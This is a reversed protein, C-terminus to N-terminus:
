CLEVGICIVFHLSTEHMLSECVDSDCGHFAYRGGQLITGNGNSSVVQMPFEDGLGLNTGGCRAQVSPCSSGLLLSPSGSSGGSVVVLIVVFDVLVGVVAQECPPYLAALSALVPCRSCSRPSHKCPTDNPGGTCKEKKERDDVLLM